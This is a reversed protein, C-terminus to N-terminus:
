FHNDRDDSARKQHINKQGSATDHQCKCCSKKDTLPLRGHKTCRAILHYILFRISPSTDPYQDDTEQDPLNIITCKACCRLVYKWHTLAHYSQSYACMTAKAMCYAKDYIHHRHQM